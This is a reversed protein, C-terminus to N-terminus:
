DDEANLDAMLEKVTGFSRVGRRDGHRWKELEAATKTNPVRPEFPLRKEEAILTMMMRVADSPTLGMSALVTSAKQKVREDIRARVVSNTSM